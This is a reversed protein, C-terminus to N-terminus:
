LDCLALDGAEQHPAIRLGPVISPCLLLLLGIRRSRCDMVTNQDHRKVHLFFFFSFLFFYVAGMFLMTLFGAQTLSASSPM